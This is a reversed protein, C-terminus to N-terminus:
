PTTAPPESPASAPKGSDWVTVWLGGINWSVHTYGEGDSWFVSYVKDPSVLQEIKAQNGYQQLFTVQLAVTEENRALQANDALINYIWGSGALAVLVIVGLVICVIKKIM